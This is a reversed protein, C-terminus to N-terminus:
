AKTPTKVPTKAPTAEKKFLRKKLYTQSPQDLWNNVLVAVVMAMVMSFAVYLAWATPLTHIGAAKFVQKSVELTFPHSLYLVYGADGLLLVMRGVRGTPTFPIALVTLFILLTPLGAFFFREGQLGPALYAAGAMAAVIAACLAIWRKLPLINEHMAKAVLVGVPFLFIITNGLMTTLAPGFLGLRAMTFAGAVVGLCAWPRYAPKLLLCAAFVFYFFAEYLLTWTLGLIPQITGNPAIHPVLFLSQVAHSPSFSASQLLQPVLLTAFVMMLTFLWFMPLIRLFRQALFKGAMGKGGPAHSTIWIMTLGSVLFSLDAGHPFPSGHLPSGFAASEHLVHNFCVEIAAICRLVQLQYLRAPKASM